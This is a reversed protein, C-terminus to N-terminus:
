RGCTPCAPGGTAAAVCGRCDTKKGDVMGHGCGDCWGTGSAEMAACAACDHASGDATAGGDGGGCGLFGFGIVAACFALALVRGM